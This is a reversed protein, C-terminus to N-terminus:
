KAHKHSSKQAKVMLELLKESNKCIGQFDNQSFAQGVSYGQQFAAYPKYVKALAYDLVKGAGIGIDALDQDTGLEHHATAIIAACVKGNNDDLKELFTDAIEILKDADNPVPDAPTWCHTNGDTAGGSTWWTGSLDEATPPDSDPEDPTVDPEDPTVDPEDPTVDPEDPTVDPEDPTVDPEDPTVDPEDPTVDPEDPTVDPEDPTVDPEDDRILDGKQMARCVAMYKNNGSLCSAEAAFGFYSIEGAGWKWAKVATKIGKRLNKGSWGLAIASEIAPRLISSQTKFDRYSAPTLILKRGKQSIAFCVVSSRLDNAQANWAMRAQILSNKVVEKANIQTVALVEAMNQFGCATTECFSSTLIKGGKDTEVQVGIVGVLKDKSKADAASVMLLVFLIVM